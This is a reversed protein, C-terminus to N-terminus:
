EAGKADGKADAKADPAEPAKADPAEPAKAGDGKADESFRSLNKKYTVRM